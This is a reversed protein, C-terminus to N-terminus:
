KENSVEKIKIIKIKNERVFENLKDKAVQNLFNYVKELDHVDTLGNIIEEVSYEPYDGYKIRQETM